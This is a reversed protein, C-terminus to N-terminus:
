IGEMPDETMLCYNCGGGDCRKCESLDTFEGVEEAFMLLEMDTFYSETFPFRSLESCIGM